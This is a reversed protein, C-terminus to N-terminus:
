VVGFLLAHRVSLKTFSDQSNYNEGFPRVVGFGEVLYMVVRHIAITRTLPFHDFGLFQVSLLSCSREKSLGTVWAEETKGLLALIDILILAVTLRLGTVPATVMSTGAAPLWIPRFPYALISLNSIMAEALPVRVKLLILELPQTVFPPIILTGVPATM